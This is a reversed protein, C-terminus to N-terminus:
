GVLAYGGAALCGCTGRVPLPPALLGLVVTAVAPVAFWLTTDLQRAADHRLAVQLASEVAGVAILLDFGYSRAFWWLRSM